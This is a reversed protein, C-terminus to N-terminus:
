QFQLEAYIGKESSLAGSLRDIAKKQTMIHM